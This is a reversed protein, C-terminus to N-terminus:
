REQRPQRPLRLTFLAGGGEANTASIDGGHARAIARSVPLGLGTGRDKTTFFPEFLHELVRGSLGPGTDSVEVRAEGDVESLAVRVSGGHGAAEAANRILNALVQRIRSPHGEAVAAGEVHVAISGDFMKVGWLRAIVAESTARLDIQEGGAQLPRSLDLLGEVIEKCRLAEEEIVGLDEALGGDARKRLLKAYGLIVGLPNNIEHAVGAALRGIGALKESQVLKAQHEKLAVAMANFQAALAGFEDRSTAEIHTDLDGKGIREAGVRLRAMPVTVSRTVYLTVALALLPAGILVALTGHYTRREFAAAEARAAAIRRQCREVLKDTYGQIDSVLFQARAHEAQVYATDHRVVAPVIRERFIADLQASAREIDDMWGLEDPTEMRTRVARTVELVRRQAQAYLPLHSTNGIIITHAQHAYQDRVASALELTLRICEQDDKTHDMARRIRGLGALTLWSTMAFMVVLAGFAFLLKRATGSRYTLM